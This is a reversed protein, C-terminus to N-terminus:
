GYVHFINTTQGALAISFATLLFIPGPQILAYAALLLGFSRKIVAMRMEYLTRSTICYGNGPAAVIMIELSKRGNVAAMRMGM